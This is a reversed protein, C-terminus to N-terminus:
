PRSIVRRAALREGLVVSPLKVSAPCRHVPYDSVKFDVWYYRERMCWSYGESTNRFPIMGFIVNLRRLQAHEMSAVCEFLRHLRAHPFSRALLKCVRPLQLALQGQEAELGQRDANLGSYAKCPFGAGVLICQIRPFKRALGDAWAQDLTRVDDHIIAEPWRAAVVARAPKVIGVSVRGCPPIGAVDLSRHLAGIGDFLGVALLGSTSDPETLMGHLSRTAMQVGNETLGTSVCVGNGEAAADSCTLEVAVPLRFDIVM